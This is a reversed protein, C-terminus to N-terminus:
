RTAAGHANAFVTRSLQFHENAYSAERECPVTGRPPSPQWRSRADCRGFHHYVGVEGYDANKDPTASAPTVVSTRALGAACRSDAVRHAIQGSFSCRSLTRSLPAIEDARILEFWKHAAGSAVFM